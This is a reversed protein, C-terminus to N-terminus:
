KSQLALVSKILQFATLQVRDEQDYAPDYSAFGAGSITFREAILRFITEAEDATLGGSMAFKNAPAISTTLVDLDFHIYVRKVRERLADLAPTITATLDGGHLTAAMQVTVDSEDLLQQEAVDFDQGGLILMNAEPMPAFNPITGALARWCRGAVVAMAMGDLFGSTTIEPTNFDGHCDFWILGLDDGSLGSVAGISAGCNGSLVVPFHGSERAAHLGSSLDGYLKFATKNESTFPDPDELIQTPALTYDSSLVSELNRELLHLPGAGM